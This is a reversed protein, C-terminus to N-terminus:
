LLCLFTPMGSLYGNSNFFVAPFLIMFVCVVTALYSLQYNQTKKCLYLLGFSVLAILINLFFHMIGAGTFFTSVAMILSIFIGGVALVNFLRMRLDLHKGFYREQIAKVKEMIRGWKVIM